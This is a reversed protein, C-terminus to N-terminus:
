GDSPPVSALGRCTRKVTNRKCYFSSSIMCSSRAILAIGSVPFLRLRSNYLLIKQGVHFEKRVLQKDHYAKTREKYIKKANEYADHRLEELEVLQLKRKEGAQKMDFNLQKIACYAQHELEVPLHCAKGFVLRYPSMGIPTKYVTGYAKHTIGYKKLLSAFPHNNFHSGGDNIIARLTGFLTFTYEQLFKVVVRHDNTKSPVVEVWKSVYNVGVPPFVKTTIYNVIDAYWPPHVNISFLQEDPFQEGLPLESGEEEHLLRSLHDAVVNESGKKDRIELDFEQLQLVWRILRPKADKKGFLYRLAAHDTFIIVKSGILYSRFKELAFIVALLEKEITSYNLQADNLTRSAYYIAHHVKDVLQGLVAGLAFDNADCMLKFPLNWEPAMMIPASTLLKKLLNFVDMCEDTWIFKTDKALLACLPRSIKSFDKIFRRYFRAHGMFSRIGKVTMFLPLKTIIDIKAKDVEIGKSCIGHGLMIGQQVMFHCKEWNLVQNCDECRKLVIMSSPSM